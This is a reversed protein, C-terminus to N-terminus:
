NSNKEETKINIELKKKHKKFVLNSYEHMISENSSETTSVCFRLANYVDISKKAAQPPKNPKNRPMDTNLKSCYITM